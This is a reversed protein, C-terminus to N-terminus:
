LAPAVADAAHRQGVRHGVCDAVRRAHAGADLLEIRVGGWVTLDGSDPEDQRALMRLLTSKGSGNVGILGIRDGENILLNANELLQREGLHKSINDATILNM